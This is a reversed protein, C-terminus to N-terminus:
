ITRIVTMKSIETDTGGGPGSGGVEGPRGAHDFNGSGEGGHLHVKQMQEAEDQSHDIYVVWCRRCNSMIFGNGCYLTSITELDYVYGHYEIVKIDIINHLSILRPFGHIIDTLTKTDSTGNNDESQTTGTDHDTISVFRHQNTHSSRRWFYPASVRTGSMGGDTTFAAGFLFQQLPSRSFLTIQSKCTSYLDDTLVHKFLPTKGTYGLFRYTCIIDINGNCFRGDGHFDEPTVPMTESPMGCTMSFSKIIDEIRSPRNNDNPNDTIIGKFGTCYVINDGKCLIDAAAFGHDTLLMHNPTVTVKRGESLHVEIMMGDYWVRFGSVIGEKEVITDPHVCNPHAQADVEAAEDLTFIAGNIGGESVDRCGTFTRDGVTIEWSDCTREDEAEVAELLEIGIKGYKERSAANVARMVESRVLTSARTIGVNDVTRVMDRTVEGYTRGTLLGDSMLRTIQTSSAETIGKLDSLSRAKLNNIIRTDIVSMKFPPMIGSYGARQAQLISFRVGHQYAEKTTEDIIKEGPELIEEKILIGLRKLFADMNVSPLDGAKQMKPEGLLDPIRKKFNEFLKHLRTEMRDEIHASQSPDKQIEPSTDTM